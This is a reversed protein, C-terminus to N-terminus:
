TWADLAAEHDDGEALQEARRRAAALAKDRAAM